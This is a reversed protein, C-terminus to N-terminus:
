RGGATENGTSRGSSEPFFFDTCMVMPVVTIADLFLVTLGAEVGRDISPMIGAAVFALCSIYAWKQGRMLGAALLSEVLAGVFLRASSDKLAFALNVCAFLGLVIVSVWLLAPIPKRM